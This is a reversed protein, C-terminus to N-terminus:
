KNGPMPPIGDMIDTATVTNGSVTGHVGITDGVSIDSVSGTIMKHVASSGANVTYTTGDKGTVTLTAGNVASVMGMVGHGKGMMKGMMGHGRGGMKGSFVKTAVVNTGNVTGVAFVKGGIKFDSLTATKGDKTFTAGSADITVTGGGENAEETITITSGNIASITGDVHPSQMLRMQSAGTGTTGTTTQAGALSAYGALAGGGLLTLVAVPLLAM